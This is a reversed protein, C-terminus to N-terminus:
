SGGWVAGPVSKADSWLSGFFAKAQSDAYDQLVRHPQVSPALVPDYSTGGGHYLRDYSSWRM